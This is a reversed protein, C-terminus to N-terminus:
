PTTTQTVDIEIKMNGKAVTSVETTASKVQIDCDYVTEETIAATDSPAITIRIRGNAMDTVVIGNTLTKQIVGTAGDALAIDPKATFWITYGTLPM